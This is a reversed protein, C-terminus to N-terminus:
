KMDENPEPIAAQALKDVRENDKFGRHGPVRTFKIQMGDDRQQNIFKVYKKAVDKNAKDKDDVWRKVEEYDHYISLSKLDHAKAWSVAMKIASIEGGVNASEVIDSDNSCGKLQTEGNATMIIAAFGVYKPNKNQHSGDTFIIAEKPKLKKKKDEIEKDLRSYGHEEFYEAEEKDKADFKKVSKRHHIGEVNDWTDYFLKRTGDEYTVVYYRKEM